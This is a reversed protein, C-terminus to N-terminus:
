GRPNDNKDFAKLGVMFDICGKFASKNTASIKRNKILDKIILLTFKLIMRIAKLRAIFIGHVKQTYYLKSWAIKHWIIKERTKQNIDCSQGSLHHFKTNKAIATKYGKKVARKCIENDEGYLFFGEDFFNIKRMIKMNMFMAAGTIFQNFFFNDDESFSRTKKINTCLRENELDVNSCGYVFPGAIAVQDNKSMSSVIKDITEESIFADANLLLSFDSKAERLAINNARGYGINKNNKILVAEPFDKSVISCTEDLSANDVVFVNYKNFNIRSLSSSIIKASNFTVLIISLNKTM